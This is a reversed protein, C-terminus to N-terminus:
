PFFSIELLKRSKVALGDKMAPSFRVDAWAALAAKDFVGEPISEEVQAKRVLGREDVHLLLLVRGVTGREALEVPYDIQVPTLPEARVSVEDASFWRDPIPFAGAGSTPAPGGSDRTTDQPGHGGSPTRRAEALFAEATDATASEFARHLPTLVAHLVSSASDGGSGKGEGGPPNIGLVLAHLAISAACFLTLRGRQKRNIGGCATPALDANARLM